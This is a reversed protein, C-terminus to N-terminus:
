FPTRKGMPSFVKFPLSLIFFLFASYVFNILVLWLTQSSTNCSFHLQSKTVFYTVASVALGNIILTAFWSRVSYYRGFKNNFYLYYLAVFIVTSIVLVGGVQPYIITQFADKVKRGCSGNRSLYQAWSVSLAQLLPDYLAKWM